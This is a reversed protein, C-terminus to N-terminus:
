SDPLLKHVLELLEKEDVPKALYGDPPPVQKRKSIFGRFDESVGTIMIVPISKWEESSRLERYCRVGSTEPMSVDLTILDPRSERVMKLGEEGNEASRTDFGDDQLLSSFYTVTDPEDDIILITKKAAM